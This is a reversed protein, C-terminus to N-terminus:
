SSNETHWSVSILSKGAEFDYYENSIQTWHRGTEQDLNKLKELRKVVVSRKHSEFSADAMEQIAKAQSQLFLDIRSELYESTRESQIIFRFGYTTASGM